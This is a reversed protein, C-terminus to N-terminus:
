SQRYLRASVRGFERQRFLNWDPYRLPDIKRDSACEVYISTGSTLLSQTALADLAKNLVISKFPPDVFLIDFNKIETQNASLWSLADSNIVQVNSASLDLCNRTLAACVRRDREIMVVSAANRSAAEFGLAGSGAFLDLCRAGSLGPSLWNFLTERVRDGTPRLGAVPPFHIRRGRWNGAIIRVQGANGSPKPV